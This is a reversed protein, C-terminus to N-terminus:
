ELYEQWVRVLEDPGLVEEPIRKGARIIMLVEIRVDEPLWSVLEEDNPDSRQEKAQYELGDPYGFQRISELMARHLRRAPIVPPLNEIRALHAVGQAIRLGPRDLDGVYEIRELPRELLTFHLVSREFSTGSGFGILGYPSHSCQKLISCATRFAAANEFVLAVNATGIEELFLPPIDPMCGLLELSLRGPRFLASDLLEGLRKENGTLQLSRYKLPAQRQLLGERLAHQVRKLLVEHEQSLMPLRAVWRLQPLWPYERWSENDRVQVLPTKWVVTPLPPELTHDWCNGQSSPFRIIGQDVAEQLVALLWKRNEAGGPRYPFAERFCEWLINSDLRKGHTHTLRHLFTQMPGHPLELEEHTNSM